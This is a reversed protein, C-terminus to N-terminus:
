LIITIAQSRICILLVIRSTAASLIPASHALKSFPTILLLIKHANHTHHVGVRITTHLLLTYLIHIAYLTSIQYFVVPGTRITNRTPVSVVISVVSATPQLLQLYSYTCTSVTHVFHPQHVYETLPQPLHSFNMSQAIVHQSAYVSATVPMFLCPHMSLFM